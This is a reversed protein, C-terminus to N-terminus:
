SECNLGDMSVLTRKLGIEPRQEAGFFRGSLALRIDVAPAYAPAARQEM